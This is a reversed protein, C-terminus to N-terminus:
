YIFRQHHHICHHHYEGQNNLIGILLLQYAPPQLSSAAGDLGNQPLPRARSLMKDDDQPQPHDPHHKIMM